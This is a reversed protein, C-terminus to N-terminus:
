ETRARSEQVTRARYGSELHQLAAMAEWKAFGRYITTAEKLFAIAGTCPAMSALVSFGNPGYPSADDIQAWEAYHKANAIVLALADSSVSAMIAAAAAFVNRCDLAAGGFPMDYVEICRRMLEPICDDDVPIQGTSAMQGFISSLSDTIAM